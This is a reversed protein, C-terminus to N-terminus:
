GFEVYPVQITADVNKGFADYLGVGHGMSQMAAYHGFYETTNPRDGKGNAEIFEMIQVITKNNKKEIGMMLTKAAHIAAPDIADPLQDMIEGRLENGLEEQLDAWACSFFAKAAHHLFQEIITQSM